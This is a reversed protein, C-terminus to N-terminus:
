SFTLERVRNEGTGGFIKQYKQLLICQCFSPHREKDFQKAAPTKARCELENKRREGKQRSWNVLFPTNKFCACFLYVPAEFMQM